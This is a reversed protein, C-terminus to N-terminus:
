LLKRHIREGGWSKFFNLDGSLNGLITYHVGMCGESRNVLSRNNVSQWSERELWRGRLEKETVQPSQSVTVSRMFVIADLRHRNVGDVIRSGWLVERLCPSSEGGATDRMEQKREKSHGSRDSRSPGVWIDQTWAAKGEWIEQDTDREYWKRSEEQCWLQKRIHQIHRADKFLEPASSALFHTWSGVQTKVSSLVAGQQYSASLLYRCFWGAFGSSLHKHILSDSPSGSGTLLEHQNEVLWKVKTPLISIIFYYSEKELPPM